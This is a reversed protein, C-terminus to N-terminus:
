RTSMVPASAWRHSACRACVYTMALAILVALSRKWLRSRTPVVPAVTRLRGVSQEPVVSRELVVSREPAVPRDFLPTNSESATFPRPLPRGTRRVYPLLHAPVGQAYVPTHTATPADLEIAATGFVPPPPPTHRPRPVPTQTAMPQPLWVKTSTAVSDTIRSRPMTMRDDDVSLKASRILWDPNITPDDLPETLTPADIALDVASSSGSLDFRALVSSEERVAHAKRTVDDGRTASDARADEVLQGLKRAHLVPSCRRLYRELDTALEAASQYRERPQKALARMTIRELEFPIGARVASPSSIDARRANGILRRLDAGPYLMRGTLLEYLVAGTSFVDSRVDLPQGSAQEPSLYHCNGQILGTATEFVNTTAKAVGFDALKVEGSRSVLVNQPSVDRHIIGLPRGDRQTKRHAHELGRAIHMAVYACLEVPLEISRESCHMLIDFLDAGDVYEMAIYFTDGVRGLDLTQVINTHNLQVAIKAEDVLRQTIQADNAFRSHILKLAVYKEFGAISSVRALYIEAMGGAAIPRVVQYPGFQQEVM